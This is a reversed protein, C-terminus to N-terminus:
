IVAWLIFLYTSIGQFCNISSCFLFSVAKNVEPPMKQHGQVSTYYMQRSLNEPLDLWNAHSPEWKNEWKYLMQSARHATSQTISSSLPKWVKELLLVYNAFAIGWSVLCILASSSQNVQPLFGWGWRSLKREGRNEEEKGEAESEHGFLASAGLFAIQFWQFM